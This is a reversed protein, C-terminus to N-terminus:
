CRGTQLFRRVYGWTLEPETHVFLQGRDPLVMLNNTGVKHAIYDTGSMTDVPNDQGHVILVPSSINDLYRSWNGGTLKLDLEHPKTGQAFSNEVQEAILSQLEKDERAEIDAQPEVYFGEVFKDVEKRFLFQRMGRVLIPVVAPAYTIASAFVRQWGKMAWIQKSNLVPATPSLFITAKVRTGLAQAAAAAYICGSYRGLLAVQDLQYHELIAEIAGVFAEPANADYHSPSSSQNWGPRWPAIVRLGSQAVFASARETMGTGTFLGHFMIVPFGTLSGYEDIQVKAGSPLTLFSTRRRHSAHNFADAETEKEEPMALSIAAFMRVLGAQSKAATKRLLSKSQTRITEISRGREEAIDTLNKGEVIGRLIHQETLSLGFNRELMQGISRSWELQCFGIGLQIQGQDSTMAQILFFRQDDGAEGDTQVFVRLESTLDSPRKNLEEHCLALFDPDSSLAKFHAHDELRFLNKAQDNQSVLKGSKGFLWQPSGFAKTNQEFSTPTAAQLGIRDFIQAACSFHFDIQDLDLDAVTETGISHLDHSLRKLSGDLQDFFAEFQDPDSLFGYLSALLQDHGLDDAGLPPYSMAESAHEQPHSRSSKLHNM